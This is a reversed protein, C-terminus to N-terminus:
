RSAYAGLWTSGQSKDLTAKLGITVSQGILKFGPPLAGHEHTITLSLWDTFDFDLESKVYHRPKSSLSYTNTTSDVPTTLLETMAPMRVRYTSTLKIDKSVKKGGVEIGDTPAYKLGFDAGGLGRVFTGEGYGTVANSVNGGGELGLALTANAVALGNKASHPFLRFPFTVAGASVFNLVPDRRDAEVGGPYIWFSPSHPHVYKYFVDAAFSDPDVDNRQDMAFNYSAGVVHHYNSSGCNVGKCPSWFVDGNSALTYQAKSGIAPSYSGNVSWLYDTLILWSTHPKADPPPIGPTQCAVSTQMDVIVVCTTPSFSPTRAAIDMTLTNGEYSKLTVSAQDSGTKGDGLMVSWGHAKLNELTYGADPTTVYIVKFDSSAYASAIVIKADATQGWMQHSSLLM